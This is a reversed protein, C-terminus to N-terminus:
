NGMAYFLGLVGFGEEMLGRIEEPKMRKRERYFLLTNGAGETCLGPKAEFFDLVAKNFVSRVAAEDTGRLLYSRSFRPHTEFDIDQSGFWQGIKHGMNEPRLSFVPLPTGAFRFSVVSHNWIHKHKGSGTTYRYDFIAVELDLTRGRMLNSLVRSHGQAFLHFSGLSQLFGANGKPEFEFALEAAVKKLDEVRKKEMLYSYYIAAAIIALLCGVAAFPLIAEMDRM